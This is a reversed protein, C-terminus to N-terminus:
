YRTWLTTSGQYRSATGKPSRLDGNKKRVLLVPSSWPSDSEEFVGRKRMDELMGNVEAQKALPLRHPPQRIPSADCNDIRYYVKNTRGYDGTKIAFVNQFEAIFEDLLNTEKKNLNMIAGSVM